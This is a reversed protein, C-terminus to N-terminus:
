WQPRRVGSWFYSWIYSTVILFFIYGVLLFLLLKVVNETIHFKKTRHATESSDSAFNSKVM